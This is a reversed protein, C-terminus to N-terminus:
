PQRGLFAVLKETSSADDAVAVAPDFGALGRVEDSVVGHGVELVVAALDEPLDERQGTARAIDWSHTSTDLLNISLAATAPMPGAGINMEGSLDAARWAALTGDALTRFQTAPDAALVFAAAGDAPPADGRVASGIGAVVGIAHGLLAEVDWERCPTANALQDARVGAIVGHTHDFSEALATLLDM